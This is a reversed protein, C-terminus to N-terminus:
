DDNDCYGSCCGRTLPQGCDCTGYEADDIPTIRTSVEPMQGSYLRIMGDGFPLEGLKKPPEPRPLDVSLRIQSWAGLPCIGMMDIPVRVLFENGHWLEVHTLRDGYLAPAHITEQIPLALPTELWHEGIVDIGCKYVLRNVPRGNFYGPTETDIHRKAENGLQM